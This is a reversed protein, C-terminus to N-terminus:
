EFISEFSKTNIGPICSEAIIEYLIGNPEDDPSRNEIDIGIKQEFLRQGKGAFTVEVTMSSEPAVTGTNPSISWQDIKLASEDVKGGKGKKADKKVDKVEKKGAGKKPDVPGSSSPM